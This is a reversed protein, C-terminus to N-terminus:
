PPSMHDSLVRLYVEALFQVHGPVIPGGEFIHSNAMVVIAAAKKPNIATQGQGIIMRLYTVSRQEFQCKVPKCSLCNMRMVELVERTWYHLEELNDGTILINDVYVFAFGMTLLKALIIDMMRQFSSPVNCMGFYM